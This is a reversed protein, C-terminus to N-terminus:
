FNSIIEQQIAQSLYTVWRNYNRHITGNSYDLNESDKYNISYAKDTYSIDVVAKHSRVYISAEILGEEVLRPTWGKKLCARWIAEKVEAATTSTTTSYSVVPANDINYVPKSTCGSAFVLLLATLLIVKM